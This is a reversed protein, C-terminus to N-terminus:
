LFSVVLFGFVSFAGVRDFYDVEFDLLHGLIYSLALSYSLFDSKENTIESKQM